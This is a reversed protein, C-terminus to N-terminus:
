VRVGVKLGSIYVNTKSLEGTEVPAQAGGSRGLHHSVAPPLPPPPPLSALFPRLQPPTVSWYGHSPPPPPPPPYHHLPAGFLYPSPMPGSSLLPPAALTADLRLEFTM